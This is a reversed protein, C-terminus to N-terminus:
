MYMYYAQTYESDVVYVHIIAVTTTSYNDSSKIMRVISKTKSYGEM